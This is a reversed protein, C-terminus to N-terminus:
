ADKSACIKCVISDNKACLLVTFIILVMCCVVPITTNVLHDEGPRLMALADDAEYKIMKFRNSLKFDYRALMIEVADIVMYRQPLCQPWPEREWELLRNMGAPTNYKGNDQCKYMDISNDSGGGIGHREEKCEYVLRDENWMFEHDQLRPMWDKLQGRDAPLFRPMRTSGKTPTPRLPQQLRTPGGRVGTFVLGSELDPQPISLQDCVVKCLALQTTRVSYEGNEQCVATVKGDWPDLDYWDQSPRALPDKCTIDIEQGAELELLDIKRLPIRLKEVLQTSNDVPDRWVTGNSWTRNVMKVSGDDNKVTENIWERPKDDEMTPMMQAILDTLNTNKCSTLNRFEAEATPTKDMALVEDMLTSFDSKDMTDDM